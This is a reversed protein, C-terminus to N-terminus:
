AEQFGLADSTWMAAEDIAWLARELARSSHRLTM